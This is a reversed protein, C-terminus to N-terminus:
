PNAFKDEACLILELFIQTVLNRRKFEFAVPWSVFHDVHQVCFHMLLQSPERQVSVTRQEKECKGVVIGM